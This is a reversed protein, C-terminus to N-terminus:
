DAISRTTDQIRCCVDGVSTVGSARGNPPAASVLADARRARQRPLVARRAVWRTELNHKALARNAVVPNLGVGKHVVSAFAGELWQALDRRCRRTLDDFAVRSATSLLGMNSLQPIPPWTRASQHKSSGGHIMLPVRTPSNALMTRCCHNAMPTDLWEM